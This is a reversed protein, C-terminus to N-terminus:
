ASPEATGGGNRRAAAAERGRATVRYTRPMNGYEAKDSETVTILGNAELRTVLEAIWRKAIGLRESIQRYSVTVKGGPGMNQDLYDLLAYGNATPPPGTAGRKKTPTTATSRESV